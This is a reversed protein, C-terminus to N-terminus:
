CRLFALQRVPVSSTVLLWARFADTSMGVLNRVQVEPIEAASGVDVGYLAAWFRCIECEELVKSDDTDM